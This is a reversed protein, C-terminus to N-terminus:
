ENLLSSFLELYKKGYNEIDYEKVSEKAKKGLILREEPNNILRLIAKSFQQPNQSEVLIGTKGDNILEPIGGTRSAIVPLGLAQADLISSGLGEMKSSLVFIDFIKLYTIVNDTFGVFRFNDYVEYSLTLEIMQQKLKGDGVCIFVSNPYKSLVIKAANILTPYDKHGVFAAVTGIVIDDKNINLKKKITEDANINGINKLDISSRITILKSEISKNISMIKKIYDSVCVIINLLRTKYKFISLINKRIEFDVRRVAVLKISRHFFKIILGISLAHSSHAILFNIKNAKIIRLIELASVIDFEHHYNITKYLLKSEECQNKMKSNNACVMISFYNQESLFKHLYLAQRQGGRWNKDVDIHLVRIRNQM